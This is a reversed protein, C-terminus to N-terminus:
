LADPEPTASSARRHARHVTTGTLAISGGASSLAHQPTLTRRVTFFGKPDPCGEFDWAPSVQLTYVGAPGTAAGDVTASAGRRLDELPEVIGRVFGEVADSFGSPAAVDRTPRHDSRAPGALLGRGLLARGDEVSRIVAIGARVLDRRWRAVDDASTGLLSSISPDSGGFAPFLADGFADDVAAVVGGDGRPRADLRGVGLCGLRKGKLTAIAAGKACAPRSGATEAAAPGAAIGVLVALLIPLRGRRL